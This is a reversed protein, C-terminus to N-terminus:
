WLDDEEEEAEEAVEEDEGSSYNIDIGTRKKWNADAM